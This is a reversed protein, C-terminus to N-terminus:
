KTFMVLHFTGEVRKFNNERHVTPIEADVESLFFVLNCILRFSLRFIESFKPFNRYIETYKPFNRLFHIKGFFDSFFHYRVSTSFKKDGEAEFSKLKM